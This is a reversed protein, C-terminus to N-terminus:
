AHLTTNVDNQVKSVQIHREQLKISSKEKYEDKLSNITEENDGKLMTKDAEEITYLNEHKTRAFTKLEKELSTQLNLNFDVTKRKSILGKQLTSRYEAIKTDSNRFTGFTFEEYPNIDDIQNINYNESKM